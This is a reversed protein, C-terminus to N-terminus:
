RAPLRVNHRNIKILAVPDRFHNEIKSPFPKLDLLKHCAHFISKADHLMKREPFLPRTPGRLALQPASSMLHQPEPVAMVLRELVLRELVTRYSV